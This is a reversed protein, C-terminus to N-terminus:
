HHQGQNQGKEEELNLAMAQASSDPLSKLYAEYEQKSIQGSALNHEILRSDFKLKKMAEDLSM